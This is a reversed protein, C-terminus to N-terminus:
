LSEIMKIYRKMVFDNDFHFSKLCKVVNAKLMEKQNDPAQLLLLPFVSSDMNTLEPKKQILFFAERLLDFDANENVVLRLVQKYEKYYRKGLEDYQNEDILEVLHECLKMASAVCKQYDQLIFISFIIQERIIFYYEGNKEIENREQPEYTKKMFYVLKNLENQELFKMPLYSDVRYMCELTKNWFNQNSIMKQFVRNGIENLGYKDGLAACIYYMMEIKESNWYLIVETDKVDNWFMRLKPSAYDSGDQFKEPASNRLIKGSIYGLVHCMKTLVSKIAISENKKFEELLQEVFSLFGLMETELDGTLYLKMWYEAELRELLLPYEEQLEINCAVCRMVQHVNEIEQRDEANLKDLYLLCSDIMVRNPVVGEDQLIVKMEWKFLQKELEHDNNDHAIRAMEDIIELYNVPNDKMISEVSAYLSKAGEYDQGKQYGLLYSHLVSKWLIPTREESLMSYFRQVVNMYQESNSGSNDWVKELMCLIIADINEVGEIESWQDTTFHKEMIAIYLELDALQGINLGLMSNYIPFASNELLVEPVDHIEAEDIMKQLEDPINFVGGCMALFDEFFLLSLTVDILAFKIGFVTVLVKCADDLAFSWLEARQAEINKITDGRWVRYYLQQARVIVKIFSSMKEPLPMEQWFIEVNIPYDKVDNEIMKEMIQYCLIGQADFNELRSYCLFLDSVDLPELSYKKIEQVLFENIAIKESQSLQEEAYNQLVKNPCRYLKGDAYVWRNRLIEMNKDSQSIKEPIAAISPIWDKEIARNAYVIRYYLRRADEDDVADLFLHKMQEEISETRRTIITAFVDEDYKWGNAEMRHIVEMVVPPLEKCLEVFSHFEKTHFLGEPANHNRMIEEVEEETLGNLEVSILEDPTVFGKTYVEADEYGTTILKCKKEKCESLIQICKNITGPKAMNPIGDIIVVTDEQLDLEKISVNQFEDDKITVWICFALHEAVRILTQTKGTFMKGYIHIWQCKRLNSTLKKVYQGKESGGIYKYPIVEFKTQKPAVMTFTENRNSILENMKQLTQRIMNGQNSIESRIIESNKDIESIITNQSKETKRNLLRALAIGDYNLLSYLIDECIKVVSNYFEKIESEDLPNVKKGSDLLYKSTEAQLRSLLEDTSSGINKGPLFVSEYIKQIPQMHEIYNQMANCDFIGSQMVKNELEKIVSQTVAEKINKETTKSKVNSFVHSVGFRMGDYILSSLINIIVSLVEPNM